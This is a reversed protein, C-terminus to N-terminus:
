AEPSLLAGTIWGWFFQKPRHPLSAIQEANPFDSCVAAIAGNLLPEIEDERGDFTEALKSLDLSVETKGTEENVTEKTPMFQKLVEVFEEVQDTSPEPITGKVDVGWTTLDIDLGDVTEAGFKPM